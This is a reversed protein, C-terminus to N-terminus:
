SSVRQRILWCSQSYVCYVSKCRLKEAYRYFLIYPRALDSASPSDEAASVSWYQTAPNVCNHEPVVTSDDFRRWVIPKKDSSSIWESRRGVTFYHGSSVTRGQSLHHVCVDLNMVRKDWCDCRKVGM